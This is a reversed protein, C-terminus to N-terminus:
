DHRLAEAPDMRAATWAPAFGSFIGVMVSVTIAIVLLKASFVLPFAPMINKALDQIVVSIGLGIVGGVLCIFVAEVLFQTLIARRPAGIARRTGIEKTRERVAVFTINMIGIAGVFLSLSTIFLGALTVGAKVPGLDNEIIDTSNIEFDNVDEPMLGRVIRMLGEIESKAADKSAGDRMKIMIDVDRHDWRGSPSAKSPVVVMSDASFIGLFSGQREFVGVVEFPQHQIVVSQGIPSVNPFLATAVDYGLVVVRKGSHSEFDTFFRGESIKAASVQTYESTTGIIETGDISNRGYRVTRYKSESSVALELVSNPTKAIIENAAKAYEARFMPRKAYLRWDRGAEGWPWRGIYFTNKGIMSLSDDFGKDIGNVATGMLTVAIVGIMVGLATLAARMKHQLVQEVAIRLSEYIEFRFKTIGSLLKKM